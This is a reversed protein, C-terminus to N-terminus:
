SGTGALERGLRLVADVLMEFDALRSRHNVIAVRLAYRGDLVTGSPVAIGDEQLRLLIEENILNLRAEDLDPARYRFCVVNLPVPALLELEGDARVRNALWEAQEVNQEIVRAIADVGQSKFSMWVKLARFGRTLDMGLDAFPLGGAIVGRSTKALYVPSTAFAARHAEPDRVLVCACEFPLYGWKHLDFGLSDAREIGAVRPRLRDSLCALAGFAGDVHLWLGEEAALDALAELDDSAGTNVTGATALICLPREGAARDARVAERMLEVRVRYDADVPIRRLSREGLGLLEVAKRAWGHTEASGYVRLAPGAGQLGEARVDFGARSNRAVTLGLTNAMTGGTVLVGSSGAPLGMLEALWAIVQQEVLAPAHDFGALHPNLAAGLMEAMMGLPTGNGQVWGWFRPHLNGNPYPRVLRAFDRYAAEDGQGGRPLPERLEERVQAPLPTWAPQEPLGRLHALTDDLMQHALRGFAEWDQPDLTVEPKTDGPMSAEKTTPILGWWLIV